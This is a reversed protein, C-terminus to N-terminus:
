FCSDVRDEPAVSGFRYEGGREDVSEASNEFSVRRAEQASPVYGLQNRLALGTVGGM